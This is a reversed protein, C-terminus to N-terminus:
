RGLHGPRGLHTRQPGGRGRRARFGRHCVHTRFRSGRGCRTLGLRRPGDRRARHWSATSTRPAPRPASSCSPGARAARTVATAPDFVAEGVSAGPSAPLGTALPRLRDPQEFRPHLLSELQHGDVRLLAEDPTIVGEDALDNAIVFAASPSRKGVRTQLVWLRGDEVTFEVDCLDRYHRELRVLHGLLERYATPEHQALAGLPVTARSGNV